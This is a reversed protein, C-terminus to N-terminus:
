TTGTTSIPSWCIPKEDTNLQSIIKTHGFEAADKAVMSDLRDNSRTWIGLSQTILVSSIGIIVFAMVMAAPLAFGDANFRAPKRFRHQRQPRHRGPQTLLALLTKTTLSHKTM